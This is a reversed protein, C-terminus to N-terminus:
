LCCRRGQIVLLIFGAVVVGFIIVSGIAFLWQTWNWDALNSPYASVYVTQGGERFKQGVITTRRLATSRPARRRSPQTPPNQYNQQFHEDATARRM